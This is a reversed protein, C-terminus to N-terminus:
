TEEKFVLYFTKTSYPLITMEGAIPKLVQGEPEYEFQQLPSESVWMFKMRQVQESVSRVRVLVGRKDETRTLSSVVIKPNDIQLLPKEILNNKTPIALLPRHQEMGFRNAIVPDYQEHFLVAYQQTIIGSQELPFNTDWHNNV